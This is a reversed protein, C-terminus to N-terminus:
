PQTQVGPAETQVGEPADFGELQAGAPRPPHYECARLQRDAIGREFAERIIRVGETKEANGAAAREDYGLVAIALYLVGDAGEIIFNPETLAEVRGVTVTNAM